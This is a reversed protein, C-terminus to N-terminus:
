KEEQDHYESMSCALTTDTPRPRKSLLSATLDELFELPVRGQLWEAFVGGTAKCTYMDVLLRRAACPGPTGAYIINIATADPLARKGNQIERIRSLMANTAACKAHIDQVKVALVYLKSLIVYEQSAGSGTAEPKSPLSGTYLLQEYLGFAIPDDEPLKVVKEEAEKWKGNLAKEFFRSRACILAQHIAFSQKSDGEGVHIKVFSSGFKVAQKAPIRVDKKAAPENSRLSESVNGANATATTTFSDRPYVPNGSQYLYQKPSLCASDRTSDVPSESRCSAKRPPTVPPFLSDSTATGVPRKLKKAM